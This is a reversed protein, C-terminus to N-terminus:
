TYLSIGQDKISTTWTVHRSGRAGRHDRDCEHERRRSGLTPMSSGESSSWFSCRQCYKLHCLPMRLLLNVLGPKKEGERQGSINRKISNTEKKRGTPVLGKGRLPCSTQDLRIMRRGKESNISTNTNSFTQGRGGWKPCNKDAGFGSNILLQKVASSQTLLLGNESGCVNKGCFGAQSRTFLGKLDYLTSSSQIEAM